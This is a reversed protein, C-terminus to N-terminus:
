ITIELYNMDGEGDIIGTKIEDFNQPFSGGFKDPKHSIDEGLGTM